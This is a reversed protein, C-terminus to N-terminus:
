TKILGFDKFHVVHNYTTVGTLGPPRFLWCCLSGATGATGLVDKERSKNCICCIDEYITAYFTLAAVNCMIILCFTRHTCKCLFFFVVFLFWFLFFFFSKEEPPKGCESPKGPLGCGDGLSRRGRTRFAPTRWSHSLSSPLLRNVLYPKFMDSDACRLKQEAPPAMGEPPKSPTAAACAVHDVHCRMIIPKILLVDAM